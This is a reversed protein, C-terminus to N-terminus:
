QLYETISPQQKQLFDPAHTRPSRTACPLQAPFQTAPTASAPVAPLAAGPPARTLWRGGRWPAGARPRRRQSVPDRTHFCPNFMPLPAHLQWPVGASGHIVTRAMPVRPGRTDPVAPPHSLVPPLLCGLFVYTGEKRPFLHVWKM